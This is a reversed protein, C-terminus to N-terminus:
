RHLIEGITELMAQPVNAELPVVWIRADNLHRCKVADKETMLIVDLQTKSYQDFHIDSFDAHDELALTEMSLGLDQLGQFFKEPAAIGAVALIRKDRLSLLDQTETPNVLQYASLMRCPIVYKNLSPEFSNAKEKVPADSSVIETVWTFDRPRDVSERLPGAPLLFGNGNGRGDQVVIEIDRGKNQASHRRLAYHQLGDDSIIINIHPYKQLLESGSQYRNAGIWVPIQLERLQEAMLLAEDGVMLSTDGLLVEKTLQQHLESRYGRTIVGPKFGLKQLAKALAIVCPTKGTGGVRINGVIIIPVSLKQSPFIGWQYLQYRIGLVISHLFSIPWLLFALGNKTEWFSPAKLHM